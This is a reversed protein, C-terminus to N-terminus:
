LAQQPFPNGTSSVSSVGDHHQALYSLMKHPSHDSEELLILQPILDKLTNGDLLPDRSGALVLYDKASQPSVSATELFELGRLLIERSYPEQPNNEPLRIGSLDFFGKLTTLYDESSRLMKKQYQLKGLPIKGGLSKEAPFALIPALLIVKTQPTILNQHVMLWLSGMSYGIVWDPKTNFVRAAEEEQDPHKPYYARVEANPFYSNVLQRFWEEPLAWGCIATINIKTEM